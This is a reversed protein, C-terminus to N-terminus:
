EDRYRAAHWIACLGVLPIAAAACVLLAFSAYAWIIALTEMNM